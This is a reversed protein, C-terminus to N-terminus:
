SSSAAPYDTYGLQPQDEPYTYFTKPNYDQSPPIGNFFRHPLDPNIIFPRGYVIADAKREAIYNDGEEGTFKCNAFFMTNKILHRFEQIDVDTGRGEDDSFSLYRSLQIYGIDRSDLEQIIYSHLEIIKDSSGEGMDNRGGSPTFKIGILKKPYVQMLEDITELIFRSRNEISGGYEDDRNNSHSELFQAPLYGGACQLEIGDFGALKANEAAKKYMKIYDKPNKITEPISYGPEGKLLRFKGAKAPIDSPAPPPIGNNMGANACRGLHWLQAFIHGGKAHVADTVKKWGEIQEDSWIGPAAPWETGQPEILIGETLILGAGARQSYYDVNIQTPVLGRNRTLSAMIVRNKLKLNGLQLPEQLNPFQTTKTM